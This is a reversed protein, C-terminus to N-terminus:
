VILSSIRRNSISSVTRGPIARSATVNPQNMMTGGNMETYLVDFCMTRISSRSPMECVSEGAMLTTRVNSTCM